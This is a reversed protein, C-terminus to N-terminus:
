DAPKGADAPRARARLGADASRDRNPRDYRCRSDRLQRLWLPGLGRVQCAVQNAADRQGKQILEDMYPNAGSLYKGTATDQLNNESASLTKYIDAARKNLAGNTMIATIAGRAYETANTGMAGSAWADATQGLGALAQQSMVGLGTPNTQYLSRAGGAIDLMDQSVPAWPTLRAAENRSEDRVENEVKHSQEYSQTKSSSGGGM